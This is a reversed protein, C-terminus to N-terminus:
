KKGVAINFRKEINQYEKERQNPDEISKLLEIVIQTSNKDGEIGTVEYAGIVLIEGLIESLKHDNNDKVEEDLKEQLANLIEMEAIAKDMSPENCQQDGFNNQQNEVSM